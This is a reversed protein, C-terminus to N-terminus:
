NPWHFVESRRDLVYHRLFAIIMPEVDPDEFLGVGGGGVDFSSTDPNVGLGFYPNHGGGIVTHFHYRADTRDMADALAEAQEYPVLKDDTGHVILMPPEDKHVYFVPSARRVLDTNGAAEPGLLTAAASRLRTLDSVGFLNVSCIVESTCDLNEGVDFIKLGTTTGLMAALHGGASEGVVAIRNPDYGYEHAHAKLWRIAAKCDQIQAPWLASPALRYNISAMAYGKWLWQLNNPNVSDGTKDGHEWGGGHIYVVLAGGNGNTPLYLDIQQEPGGGIVYPLNTVWAVSQSVTPYPPRTFSRREANSVIIDSLALSLKTDQYAFDGAKKQM